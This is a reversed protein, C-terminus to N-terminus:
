PVSNQKGESDNLFRKLRSSAFTYVSGVDSAVLVLVDAGTCVSLEHAKKLLQTKRTNYSTLRKGQDQIYELGNTGQAGTGDLLDHCLDHLGQNSTGKPISLTALREEKRFM